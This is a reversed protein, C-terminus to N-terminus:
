TSLGRRKLECAAISEIVALLETDDLPPNFRVDNVCRMIEIAIAPSIGRRFLYGALKAALNNRGGEGSGNQLLSVWEETAKATRHDAQIEASDTVPFATAVQGPFYAAPRDPFTMLETMEPIRGPKTPWAISGALRMLRAPNVVSPDAGLAAAIAANQRRLADIETIPDDLVWFLQTRLHPHRGTVTAVNAPVNGCLKRAKDAVGPDDLDAWFASACLVADDAARRGLPADERRLAVGFYVNSGENSNIQAADDVLQDIADLDYLKARSLHGTAPDRWALEILGNAQEGFLALLFREM